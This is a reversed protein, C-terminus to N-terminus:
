ESWWFLFYCLTLYGFSLLLINTRRWGGLKNSYLTFVFSKSMTLIDGSVNQFHPFVWTIVVVKLICRANGDGPFSEKHGKAGLGGRQSGWAVASWSERVIMKCKWPDWICLHTKWYKIHSCIYKTCLYWVM